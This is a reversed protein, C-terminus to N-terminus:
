RAASESERRAKARSGHFSSDALRLVCTFLGLVPYHECISSKALGTIPNPVGFYSPRAEPVRGGLNQPRLVFVNTSPPPPEDTKVRLGFYESGLILSAGGDAAGVRCSSAV